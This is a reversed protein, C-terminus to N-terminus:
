NSFYKRLAVERSFPEYELEWMSNTYSLGKSKFYKGEKYTHYYWGIKRTEASAVVDNIWQSAGPASRVVSFETILAPIKPYKKQFAFIHKLSNEISSRYWYRGNIMGPYALHSKGGEWSPTQLTYSHPEYMHVTAMIKKDNLITKSPKWDRMAYANGSWAPTVIIYHKKDIKRIERVLTDQLNYWLKTNNYNEEDFLKPDPENFLEYLVQDEPLNRFENALTRWIRLTIYRYDRGAQDTRWMSDDPVGTWRVLGPQEHLDIIVPMKHKQAILVISKIRALKDSQMRYEGRSRCTGNTQMLDGDMLMLRLSKAGMNKAYIIEAETVTVYTTFGELRKTDFVATNKTTAASAPHALVLNAAFIILIIKITIKVM